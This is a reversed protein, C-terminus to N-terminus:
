ISYECVCVCVCLSVQHYGMGGRGMGMSSGMHGMMTQGVMNQMMNQMRFKELEKADESKVPAQPDQKTTATLLATFLKAQSDAAEAAKDGMNTSKETALKRLADADLDARSRKKRRKKRPKDEEDEDSSDSESEEM